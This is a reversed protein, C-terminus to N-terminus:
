SKYVVPRKTWQEIALREQRNKEIQDAVSKAGKYITKPLNLIFEPVCRKLSFGEDPNEVIGKKYIYATIAIAISAVLLVTILVPPFAVFVGISGIVGLAAGVVGIIHQVTKKIAYERIKGMLEETVEPEQPTPNLIHQHEPLITMTSLMQQKTKEAESPKPFIQDALWEPISRKLLVPHCEKLVKMLARPNKKWASENFVSLFWIQRSLSLSEKVFSFSSGAISLGGLVQTVSLGALIPSIHKFLNSIFATAQIGIYGLYKSAMGMYNFLGAVASHTEFASEIMDFHSGRQYAEKYGGVAGGINTLYNDVTRITM